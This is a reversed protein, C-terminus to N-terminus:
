YWQRCDEREAPSASVAVRWIWRRPVLALQTMLKTLGMHVRKGRGEQWQDLKLLQNRDATSGLHIDTGHRGQHSHYAGEM